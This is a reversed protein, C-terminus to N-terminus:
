QNKNRRWNTIADIMADATTLDCYRRSVDRLNDWHPGEHQDGVCDEPVLTRFGWQFSDVISARVCGSTVCGLLIITDVGEKNFFAAAPTQFFMSAGSKRMAVDYEKNYTRPDFQTSHDGDIFGELVATIKWYPKDRASSYGTYCNAVPVGCERAVTLLRTSNSIARQVLASGGLSHDPDTFGLQFDVVAIGPKEGFGISEAGYSRAEYADNENSNM